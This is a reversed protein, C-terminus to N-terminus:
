KLSRVLAGKSKWIVADIVYHNLNLFVFALGAFLTPTEPALLTKDGLQPLVRTLLTGVAAAVIL